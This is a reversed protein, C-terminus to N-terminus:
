RSTVAPLVISADARTTEKRIKELEDRLRERNAPSEAAWRRLEDQDEVQKFGGEDPAPVVDYLTTEQMDGLDGRAEGTPADLEGIYATVQAGERQSLTDKRRKESLGSHALAGDYQEPLEVRFTAEYEEAWQDRGELDLAGQDPLERHIVSLRHPPLKGIPSSLGPRFRRAADSAGQKSTFRDPAEQDGAPRAFAAAVAEPDHRRVVSAGNSYALEDYAAAAAVNYLQAGKRIRQEVDRPLRVPRDTNDLADSVAQRICTVALTSFSGKAPDWSDIAKNLGPVAFQWMDARDISRVWGTNIKELAKPVLGLNRAVLVERACSHGDQAEVLLKYQVDEELREPLVMRGATQDHSYALTTAQDPLMRRVPCSRLGLSCEAM